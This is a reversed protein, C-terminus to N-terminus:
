NSYLVVLWLPFNQHLMSNLNLFKHEDFSVRFSHFVWAVSSSFINKMFVDLLPSM